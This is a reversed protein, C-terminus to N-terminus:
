RSGWKSAHSKPLQNGLRMTGTDETPILALVKGMSCTSNNQSNFATKLPKAWLGAYLNKPKIEM